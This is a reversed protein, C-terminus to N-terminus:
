NYAHPLVNGKSFGKCDCWRQAVVIWICDMYILAMVLVVRLAENAKEEEENAIQQQAEAEAQEKSKQILVIRQLKRKEVMYCDKLDEQLAAVILWNSADNCTQSGLAYVERRNLVQWKGYFTLELFSKM